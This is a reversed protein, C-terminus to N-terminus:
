QVDSDFSNFEATEFKKFAKKKGGNKLDTKMVFNKKFDQVKLTPIAQKGQV